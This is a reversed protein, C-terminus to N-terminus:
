TVYGDTVDADRRAASREDPPGYGGGGASEVVLVEGARMKAVAKGKLKQRVRGSPALITVRGTRGSEGGFVGYPAFRCREGMISATAPELVRYARRVGLGGRFRGAGGSGPILGYEVVRVPYTKEIVEAPTNKTNGIRARTGNTGDRHPRAGYGGPGIEYLTSSSGRRRDFWSLISVFASGFCAATVREPIADALARVIVDIVRESTEHNGAVVPAPLTANLITGAPAIVRIPRYCGDNAPISPDTLNRTACYAASCTGFYTTNIPGAAQSDTGTFDYTIEGGSVTVTVAIRFPRRGVGDDDMFDEARYVGDPITGIAHGMRRESYEFSTQIADLLTDRGYAEVLARVRRDAYQTAAYQAMMDGFRQERGRVNSLILDAVEARVKGGEIVKIPPIQLGEQYIETARASYSGPIMGGIDAWHALTEAVAIMHGDVFIPALGKVDPLHNGGVALANTLYFDGPRMTSRDVRRLFEKVTFAMVGLHIPMDDGQAILRGEADTLACSLDGAEQLLPSRASRMLIVKMEDAIAYLASRIVEFTIPDV